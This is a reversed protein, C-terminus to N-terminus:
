PFTCGDEIGTCPARCSEENCRDNCCQPDKRATGSRARPTRSRAASALFTGARLLAPNTVVPLAMLSYSRFDVPICRIKLGVQLLLLIIHRKSGYKQDHEDQHQNAGKGGPGVAAAPAIVRGSPYTEDHQDKDDQQQDSPDLCRLSASGPRKEDSSICHLVFSTMEVQASELAYRIGRQFLMELEVLPVNGLRVLQEFFEGVKRLGAGDVLLSHHFEGLELATETKFVVAHNQVFVIETVQPLVAITSRRAARRKMLGGLLAPAAVLAPLRVKRAYALHAAYAPRDAVLIGDGAKEAVMPHLHVLRAVNGSEDRHEDHVHPLVGEDQVVCRLVSRFVYVSEQHVDIPTGDLRTQRLAPLRSRCSPRQQMCPIPTAAGGRRRREM